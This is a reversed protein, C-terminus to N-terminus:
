PISQGSNLGPCLCFRGYCYQPGCLQMNGRGGLFFGLFKSRSFFLNRHSASWEDGSLTSNLFSLLQVEGGEVHCWSIFQSLNANKKFTNFITYTRCIINDSVKAISIHFM